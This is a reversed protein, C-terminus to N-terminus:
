VAEIVGGVEKRELVEQIVGMGVVRTGETIKFADSVGINRRIHRAPLMVIKAVASEGPALSETDSLHIESCFHQETNFNINPRYGTFAASRRGGLATPLLTILANFTYAIRSKM